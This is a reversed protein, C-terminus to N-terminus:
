PERLRKIVEQTIVKGSKMKTERVLAVTEGDISKIYGDFLQDGVHLFYARKDTGRFVATYTGENLSTGMLAVQAIYMGAIGPPPNDRLVEVDVENRQKILLPKLFPDRKNLSVYRVGQFPIAPKKKAPEAKSQVGKTAPTKKAAAKASPPSPPKKPAEVTKKPAPQEKAPEKKTKPPAQTMGVPVILVFSLPLAFSTRFRRM